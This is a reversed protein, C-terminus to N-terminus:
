AAPPTAHPPLLQLSALTLAARRTSFSAVGLLFESSGASFAPPYDCGAIKTYWGADDASNYWGDGVNPTAAAYGEPFSTPRSAAKMTIVSGTPTLTPMDSVALTGLSAPPWATYSAEMATDLM